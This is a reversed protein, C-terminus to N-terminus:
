STNKKFFKLLNPCARGLNELYCQWIQKLIQLSIKKFTGLVFRSNNEWHTKHDRRCLVSDENDKVWQNTWVKRVWDTYHGITISYCLVHTKRIFDECINHEKKKAVICFIYELCYIQMLALCFHIVVVFSISIGGLFDQNWFKMTFVLCSSAM